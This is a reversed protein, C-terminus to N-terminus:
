RVVGIHDDDQERRFFSFRREKCLSLPLSQGHQLTVLASRKSPRPAEVSYRRGLLSFLPLNTAADLVRCCISLGCRAPKKKQAFVQGHTLLPINKVQCRRAYKSTIKVTVYVGRVTFINTLGNSVTYFVYQDILPLSSLTPERYNSKRHRLRINRVTPYFPGFVQLM